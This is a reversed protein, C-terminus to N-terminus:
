ADFAGGFICGPVLDFVQAQRSLRREGSADVRGTM